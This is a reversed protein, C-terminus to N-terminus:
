KGFYKFLIYQLYLKDSELITIPEDEEQQPWFEVVSMRDLNRIMSFGEPLGVAVQARSFRKVLDDIVGGQYSGIGQLDKLVPHKDWKINEYIFQSNREYFDKDVILIDFADDGNLSGDDQKLQTMVVADKFRMNTSLYSKLNKIKSLPLFYVLYLFNDNEYKYIINSEEVESLLYDLYDESNFSENFRKLHNM